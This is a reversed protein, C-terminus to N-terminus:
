AGDDTGKKGFAISEVEVVTQQSRYGMRRSSSKKAKYTRIHVKPGLKHEKVRVSVVVPKLEAETAHMKKGDSALVVPAKFTAGPEHAQRDVVIREGKTVRYQKGGLAIVAYMSNLSESPDGGAVVPQFM